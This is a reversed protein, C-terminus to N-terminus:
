METAGKSNGITGITGGITGINAGPIPEKPNLSDYMPFECCVIFKLFRPVEVYFAPPMPILPSTSKKYYRYDPNSHFLSFNQIIISYLIILM